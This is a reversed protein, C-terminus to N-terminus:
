LKTAAGRWSSCGVTDSKVAFVPLLKIQRLIFRVSPSLNVPLSYCLSTALTISICRDPIFARFPVNIKTHEVHLTGGLKVKPACSFPWNTSRISQGLHPM